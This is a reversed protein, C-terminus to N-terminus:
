ALGVPPVRDAGVIFGLGLVWAQACLLTRRHPPPVHGLRREFVERTKPGEIIVQSGKLMGVWYFFLSWGIFRKLGAFM